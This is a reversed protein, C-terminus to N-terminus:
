KKELTLGRWYVLWSADLRKISREAGGLLMEVLISDLLAVYSTAAHIASIDKIIHDSIAKEFITVLLAEVKDLFNYSYLTIQEYLHAPPFFINRLWFKTRLDQEYREKYYNLFNKLQNHLSDSSYKKFYESVFQFESFAIEEIIKLFLEEKSKFHAYISPKKIGVKESIDALSAGEYGSNAFQVLAIEKIKHSTM